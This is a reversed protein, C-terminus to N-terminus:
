EEGGNSEFEALVKEWAAELEEDTDYYSVSVFGDSSECLIVGASETLQEIETENLSDLSPDNDRFITRGNRMIGCWNGNDDSVEDDCLGDLSVAYVYSDLITAFKGPGYPRIEDTM